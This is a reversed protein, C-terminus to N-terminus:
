KKRSNILEDPNYKMDEYFKEEKYIFLNIFDDDSIKVNFTKINNDKKDFNWFNFENNQHTYLYTKNQSIILVTYVYEFLFPFLLIYSPSHFHSFSWYWQINLQLVYTVRSRAFLSSM